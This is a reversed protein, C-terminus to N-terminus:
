RIDARAGVVEEVRINVGAVIAISAPPPWAIKAAFAVRWV